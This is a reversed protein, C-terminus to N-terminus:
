RHKPRRRSPTTAGKGTALRRQALWSILLGAGAGLLLGSIGATGFTQVRSPTMSRATGEPSSVTDLRFPASVSASSGAADHIVSSLASEAARPSNAEMTVDILTTDPVAGASLGLESQPVGAADAAARLGRKDGLVIAASRAAQGYNVIEWYSAARDVPLDAPPLVALTAQATFRQSHGTLVCAVALGILLGVAGLMGGVCWTRSFLTGEMPTKRESPTSLTAVWPESTPQDHDGQRISRIATIGADVLGRATLRLVFLYATLGTLTMLALLAPAPFSAAARAVGLMVVAMCAAAPLPRLIARGLDGSTLRTVKRVVLMNAVFPVLEVALLVLSVMVIGRGAAWWLPVVMVALKAGANITLLSPRGIAKFVDGAHFSASFVLAYISLATLVPAADVYAPGYLTRIVAPAATALTVSVPATL